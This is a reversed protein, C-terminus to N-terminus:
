KQTHLNAQIAHLGDIGTYTPEFDVMQQELRGNMVHLEGCSHRVLVFNYCKLEWIIRKMYYETANHCVQRHPPPPLYIYLRGGGGGGGAGLFFAEACIYTYKLKDM